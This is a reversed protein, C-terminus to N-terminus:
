WGHLLQECAKRADDPADFWYEELLPRIETEVVDIFWQRTSGDELAETPTVYSHGICFQQRLRADNAITRNLAEFRAEIAAALSADMGRATVWRRWADGLCPELDVFAFRRRLAMDVLALSRDAVNMTGIVYLNEPVHVARRKGDADPYCLEIAESPTRKGAELLTLLEGFIQAPNGRNIEEIVVVFKADPARLAAHIAEMFVGDVLALKGEGTPRWGRVFDEYSLNPHFQVRRVKSDSQEGILAFALRKALWTKGTGPAGQLVLNKKQKLRHLMREVKPREIFCGEKFVDDITYPVIAREPVIAEPLADSDDDTGQLSPDCPQYAWAEQSLEPFSHVSYDPEQFRQELKDILSLYEAANCRRNPGSTGIDALLKEKILRRSNGDLTAFSWPRIWFLGMTLNWGVGIQGNIADFAEVFGTSEPGDSKAFDIAAAFVAWLKDIHENSRNIEFPFFWSKLNNLLPVGEFSSPVPESVGLLRALERALQKRNENTIGRNFSGMVTFPCIDRVFGQGGEPYQDKNLYDLVDVRTAIDQLGTVLATRDSRYALLADAIAQFFTTWGFRQTEGVAAGYRERWNPERLFRDIDQEKNEFAFRILAEAKWDGPLVRWITSRYTYFLWERVPEVATWDVSVRYGNQENRTVTGIAKIGMVSVPEGKSDFPLNRKRVYTAKIAIREGARMANVLASEKSTPNHVEWIGEELFRPTQDKTAGFSAGVFWFVSTAAPKEVVM